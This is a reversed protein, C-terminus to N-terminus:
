RFKGLSSDLTPLRGIRIIIEVKTLVKILSAFNNYGQISLYGFVMPTTTKVVMDIAEDDMIKWKLQTELGQWWAVYNPFSEGSWQSLAELDEKRPVFYLNYSHQDLFIVIIKGLNLNYNQKPIHVM